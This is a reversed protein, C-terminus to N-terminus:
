PCYIASTIVSSSRCSITSLAQGPAPAQPPIYVALVIALAISAIPIDSGYLEEAGAVVSCFFFSHRLTPAATLFRSSNSRRGRSMMVRSAKSFAITMTDANPPEM